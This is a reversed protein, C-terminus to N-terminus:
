IDLGLSKVVADLPVTKEKGMRWRELVAAALEYDEGDELGPPKDDVFPHKALIVAIEAGCRKVWREDLIALLTLQNRFLRRRYDEDYKRGYFRHESSLCSTIAEFTWYLLEDLDTTTRRQRECGREVVVWHYRDDVEIHPEAFDISSGFTPLLRDPADIRAALENILNRLQDLSLRQGADDFM